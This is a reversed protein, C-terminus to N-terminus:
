KPQQKQKKVEYLSKDARALLEDINQIQAPDFLVSGVSIQLAFPRQNQLNLTQTNDDLREIATDIDDASQTMALVIFEDGGIRAIIDSERFTQRLVHATQTLAWDGNQHGFTDNIHKLRDLDAYYLAMKHRNRAANKMQQPALTWFGRRNHLGTLDDVISLVKLQANMRHREIAFVLSRALAGDTAQGKVLYDQAGNQVARVALANDNLGSVVVVPVEPIARSLNSFTELGQADPLSLDLLVVDFADQAAHARLMSIAEDLRGVVEIDFHAIETKKLPECLLRVDGANDEVVLARYRRPVARAPSNAQM